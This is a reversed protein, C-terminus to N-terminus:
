NISNGIRDWALDGTFLSLPPKHLDGVALRRQKNVYSADPMSTTVVSVLCDKLPKKLPSFPTTSYSAWRYPREYGHAAYYARSKDIYRVCEDRNM